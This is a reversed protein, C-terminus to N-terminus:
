DENRASADHRAAFTQPWGYTTCIRDFEEWNPSREGAELERYDRISVGLEYATRAVSWGAQKRDHELM